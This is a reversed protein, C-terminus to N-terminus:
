IEEKIGLLKELKEISEYLLPGAAATAPGISGTGIKQHLEGKYKNYIERSKRKQKKFEKEAKRLISNALSELEKLRQTIIEGTVDKGTTPDIVKEILGVMPDRKKQENM